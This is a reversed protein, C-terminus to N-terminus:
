ELKNNKKLVMGDSISFNKFPTNCSIRNNSIIWSKKSAHVPFSIGNQFGSIYNEAIIIKEIVLQGNNANIDIGNYKSSRCKIVNGSLSRPELISDKWSFIYIGHGGPNIITNNRIIIGDFIGEPSPTPHNTLDIGTNEIINGEVLGFRGEIGNEYVNKIQNNNVSIQKLSEGTTSGFIGNCGVGSKLHIRLVGCNQIVNNALKGKSLSSCRYLEIGQGSVSDIDNKLVSIQSFNGMLFIASGGHIHRFKSDAISITSFNKLNKYYIARGSRNYDSTDKLFIRNFVCGKVIVNTKGTSDIIEIANGFIDQFEVNKIICIGGSFKAKVGILKCNIISLKRCISDQFILGNGKIVTGKIGIISFEKKLVLKKSLEYTGAKLRLVNTQCNSVIEYLDKASCLNISSTSFILYFIFLKLYYHRLSKLM